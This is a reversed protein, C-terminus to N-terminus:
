TTDVWIEAYLILLNVVDAAQLNNVITAIIDAPEMLWNAPMTNIVSSSIIGTAPDNGDAFFHDLTLSATQVSQSSCRNLPQTLRNFSISLTRNVATADTTLNVTVGIPRVRTGAAAAITIDVGAVANNNLITALEGHNILYPSAGIQSM